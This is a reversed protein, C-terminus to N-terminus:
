AYPDAYLRSIEAIKDKNMKFCQTIRPSFVGCEGDLIMSYATDFDIAKRYATNTMLADFADVISVIQASLPISEGILKEPYGKGDYREHHYRCIEYSYHYMEDTQFERLAELIECGKTTHSKVMDFESDTLKTPKMMIEDPILIKGIDHLCSADAINVAIEKTLHSEPFYSILSDCIIATIERVRKIHNKSLGRFEAVTGIMYIYAHQLDSIDEEHLRKKDTESLDDYKIEKHEDSSEQSKSDRVNEESPKPTDEENAQSKIINVKAELIKTEQKEKLCRKISFLLKNPNVPTMLIDAAMSDFCNEIDENELKEALVIVPIYKMSTNKHMLNMIQFINTNPLALDIILCDIRNTKDSLARITQAGDIAKVMDYDANLMRSIDAMLKFSGTSILIKKKNEGM